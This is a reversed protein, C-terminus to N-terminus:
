ATMVSEKRGWLSYGVLCRQGHPNELCSYQLSNGHGGRLQPDEWGLSQVWTEQMAPLNKVTQAVLSAWSYQLPYESSGPSGVAQELSKSFLRCHDLQNLITNFPHPLESIFGWTKSALTIVGVQTVVVHCSKGQFGCMGPSIKMRNLYIM